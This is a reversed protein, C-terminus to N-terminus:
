AKQEMAKKLKQLVELNPMARVYDDDPRTQELLAKIGDETAWYTFKRRKVVGLNPDLEAAPRYSLVGEADYQMTIPVRHCRVLGKGILESMRGATPGTPLRYKRKLYVMPVAKDESTAGEALLYFLIRRHQRNLKTIMGSYWCGTGKRRGRVLLTRPREEEGEAEAEAFHGEVLDEVRRKLREKEWGLRAYDTRVVLYFDDIADCIKRVLENMVM